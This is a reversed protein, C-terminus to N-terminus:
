FGVLVLMVMLEITLVGMLHRICGADTVELHTFELVSCESSRGFVLYVVGLVPLVNLVVSM